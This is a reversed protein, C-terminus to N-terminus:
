VVSTYPVTFVARSFIATAIFTFSIDYGMTISPETTRSDVMKEFGYLKTKGFRMPQSNLATAFSTCARLQPLMQEILSNFYMTKRTVISSRKIHGPELSVSGTKSCRQFFGGPLVKKYMNVLSPSLNVSNDAVSMIGTNSDACLVTTDGLGNHEDFKPEVYNGYIDYFKGELPNNRIDMASNVDQGTAASTTSVTENQLKLTSICKLSIRMDKFRIKETNIMATTAGQNKIYMDMLQFKVSATSVLGMVQEALDNALSLWTINASAPTFTIQSFAKDVEGDRYRIVINFLNAGGELVPRDWHDFDMNQNKAMAKVIAMWTVFWVQQFPATHHGVYLTQTGTLNGGREVKYVASARYLRKNPRGGRKNFRGLRRGWTYVGYNKKRGGSGGSPRDPRPRKNPGLGRKYPRLRKADGSYRNLIIKKLAGAGKYMARSAGADLTDLAKSITPQAKGFTRRLWDDRYGRRKNNVWEWVSM